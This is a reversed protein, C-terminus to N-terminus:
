SNAAPLTDWGADTPLFFPFSAGETGALHTIITEDLRRIGLGTKTSFVLHTGDSSIAPQSVPDGIDLELQVLPRDEAARTMRWALLVVAVGTIALAAIVWKPLPRPKTAASEAQAVPVFPTRAKAAEETVPAIFRYGKRAVTEVYLPQDASDNLALRLKAVAANLSREFDVFEDAAWLHDRLEERTVLEGPQKLLMELIRVAQDPVRVCDRRQADRGDPFERYLTRLPVNASIM